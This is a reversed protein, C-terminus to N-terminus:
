PSGYEPVHSDGLNVQRIREILDNELPASPDIEGNENPVTIQSIPIEEPFIPIYNIFQMFEAVQKPIEILVKAPLDVTAADEFKTFLIFQFIERVAKNGDGDTLWGRKSRFAKMSRFDENGVGAIIISLPHSSSKVISKITEPMDMVPGDIIILLVYYILHPSAKSVEIIARDIINHLLTPGALYVRNLSERYLELANAITPAYPNSENRNLAFCHNAKDEGYPVGGFGYVPFHKNSDYVELASGIEWICKEYPNPDGPTIYHLSNSLDHEGNSATYDIAISVSIQVGGRLYEFLSFRRKISAKTVIIGSKSDQRNILQFKAGDVLLQSVSAVFAGIYDPSTLTDHDWCQVLIPKNRDFNCLKQESIEFPKWVPNLTNKIVETKHVGIWQEGEGTSKSFILYPDSKGNFDKPDLNVGALDFQFIDGITKKEEVRVILIGKTSLFLQSTGRAVLEGLTICAFGLGDDNDMDQDFVTFKLFQKLEFFYKITISKSWDANGNNPRVETRDMETYALSTAAQHGLICYSGIESHKDRRKLGRASVFIELELNSPLFSEAM